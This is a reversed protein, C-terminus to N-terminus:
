GRSERLLELREDVLRWWTAVSTRRGIERLYSRASCSYGSPARCARPASRRCSRRGAARRRRRRRRAGRGLVAVAAVAVARVQRGHEADDLQAPAVDAQQERHRALAEAVRRDRRDGVVLLELAVVALPRRHRDGLRLRARVRGRDAGGRLEVAVLVHEVALLDVDGGALAGVQDDDPRREVADCPRAAILDNTTSREFGPRISSRRSCLSPMRAESVASTGGRPSGRASPPGARCGRSRCSSPSRRRSASRRCCAAAPRPSPPRAHRAGAELSVRSSSASAPRRPRSRGGPARALVGGGGLQERELGVVLGRAQQRQLGGPHGVVRLRVRQLGRYAFAFAPRAQTSM